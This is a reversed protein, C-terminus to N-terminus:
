QAWQPAGPPPAAGGRVYRDLFAVIREAEDIANAHSWEVPTHSEGPYTALQMTKGLRQGALFLQRAEEVPCGDDAEGHILLLPTQIKDVQYYPSNALYRQLDAWPHTGMRMQGEETP